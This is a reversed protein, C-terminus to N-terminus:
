QAHLLLAYGFQSLNDVGTMFRFRASYDGKELAKGFEWKATRTGKPVNKYTVEFISSSNPMSPAISIEVDSPSPVVYSFMGSEQMDPKIPLDRFMVFREYEKQTADELPKGDVIFLSFINSAEDEPTLTLIVDSEAGAPIDAQVTWHLWGLGSNIWDSFYLKGTLHDIVDVRAFARGGRVLCYVEKIQSAEISQGV